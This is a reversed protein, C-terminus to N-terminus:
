GDFLVAEVVRDIELGATESLEGLVAASAAEVLCFCTEDDPVLVARLYRAANGAAVIADAVRQAALPTGRSAYLEVLYTPM